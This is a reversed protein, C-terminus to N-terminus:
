IGLRRGRGSPDPLAPRPRRPPLAPETSGDMRVRYPKAAPAALVEIVVGLPKGLGSASRLQVTDGPELAPLAPNTANGPSLPVIRLKRAPIELYNHRTGDAAVVRVNYLPTGDDDAIGTIVARQWGGGDTQQFQVAGYMIFGGAAATNGAASGNGGQAAVVEARKAWLLAVHEAKDFSKKNRRAPPRSEDGVDPFKLHLRDILKKLDAVRRLGLYEQTWAIIDSDNTPISSM